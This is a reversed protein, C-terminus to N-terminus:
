DPSDDTKHPRADAVVAKMRPGIPTDRIVFQKKLPSLLTLWEEMTKIGKSDNCPQCLLQLNSPWNSGGRALPINHDVHYGNLLSVQCFPNACRGDQQKYLHNVDKKTYIGDANNKRARRANVYGLYAEKNKDYYEKHRDRIAEKNKNYYERQKSRIKERHAAYRLRECENKAFKSDCVKCVDRTAYFAVLAKTERCQNCIKM